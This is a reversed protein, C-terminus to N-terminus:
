TSTRSSFRAVPVRRRATRTTRSRPGAETTLPGTSRAAQDQVTM